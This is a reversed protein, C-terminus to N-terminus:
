IGTVLSGQESQCNNVSCVEWVLWNIYQLLSNFTTLRLNRCNDLGLLAERYTMQKEKTGGFHKNGKYDKENNQDQAMSADRAKEHNQDRMASVVCM